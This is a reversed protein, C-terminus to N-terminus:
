LSIAYKTRIKEGYAYFLFPVPCLALSIFAILSNGWGLGLANYMKLAFLPFVAGFISRLITNAAMASAAYMTFTDILYTNICMFAAILGVGVFLTGLLPVAWQIEYQATWGYLFLGAPILPGGYMLPPLRYEPKMVGNNNKAALHKSLRDSGVGLLFLGLFMGIGIGIYVLGVTSESFGYSGEFVFTFTTFLLYLIGYVVAMYFSMLACIPSLFMLKSPRVVSRVFVERPPLGQDLKSRLNPNGTEKRLRETKRQLLVPAYSEQLLALSVVAVVGMAIAIVWFIWRWGVDASLFGGAIPGIVPGLLPGMAWISMASGRRDPKMCDAITGGGLTLPAVGFCGALFRFGILMNMNTALACGVTFALYCVNSVHYVWLRGYLESLPAVILPGIAYGLVYVSVVFTAISDSSENFEDMVRPVGPAFMSSALPTLFTIASLIAINGWKKWEPWNMPNALDGPGDWDVINPDPPPEDNTTQEALTTQAAQKELDGNRDSISSTASPEGVKVEEFQKSAISTRSTTPRIAQSQVTSELESLHETVAPHTSHSAQKPTAM